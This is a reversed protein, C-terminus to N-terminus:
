LQIGPAPAVLYLVDGAGESMCVKGKRGPLQTQLLLAVDGEKGAGERGLDWREQGGDM